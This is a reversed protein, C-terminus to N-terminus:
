WSVFSKITLCIRRILEMPITYFLLSFICVSTLIYLTINNFSGDVPMQKLDNLGKVGLLAYCTFEGQIIWENNLLCTILISLHILYFNNDQDLVLNEQSISLSILLLQLPSNVILDQSNFPLGGTKFPFFFWRVRQSGSTILM